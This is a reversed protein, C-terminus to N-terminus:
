RCNPGKILSIYIPSYSKMPLRCPFTIAARRICPLFPSVKRRRAPIVKLRRYGGKVQLRCFHFIIPQTIRKLFHEWEIQKCVQNQSTCPKVDENFHEFSRSLRRKKGFYDYNPAPSSQDISSGTFHDSTLTANEAQAEIGFEHSFRERISDKFKFKGGSFFSCFITDIM